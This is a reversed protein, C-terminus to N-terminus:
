VIGGDVHQQLRKAEVQLLPVPEAFYMVLWVQHQILSPVWASDIFLMFLMSFLMFLMSFRHFAHFAHQFAHFAHFAHQISSFCSFCASFCSFCAHRFATHDWANEVEQLGLSHL